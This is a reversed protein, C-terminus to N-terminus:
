SREAPPPLPSPITFSADDLFWYGPLAQILQSMKIIALLLFLVSYKPLSLELSVLLLLIITALLFFMFKHM